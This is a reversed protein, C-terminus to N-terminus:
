NKKKNVFILNKYSMDIKFYGEKANQDFLKPSTGLKTNNDDNLLRFNTNNLNVNTEDIGIFKNINSMLQPLIPKYLISVIRVFEYTFCALQIIEEKEDAKKWFESSHVHNNLNILVLHLKHICAIFDFNILDAKASNILDM